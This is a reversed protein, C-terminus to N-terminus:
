KRIMARIDSGNIKIDFIAYDDESTYVLTTGTNHGLQAARIPASFYKIDGGIGGGTPTIVRYGETRLDIACILEGLSTRIFYAGNTTPGTYAKIINVEISNILKPASLAFIGNAVSSPPIPNNYSNISDHGRSGDNLTGLPGIKNYPSGFYPIPQTNEGTYIIKSININEHAPLSLANGSQFGSELNSTIYTVDLFVDAGGVNDQYIRDVFCVPHAKYWLISGLQLHRLFTHGSGFERLDALSCRLRGSPEIIFNQSREIAEFLSAVKGNNRITLNKINLNPVGSTTAFYISSLHPNRISVGDFTFSNLASMIQIIGVDAGGTILIDKCGTGQLISGVVGGDIKFFDIYKDIEVEKKIDCNKMVTKQSSFCYVSAPCKINKLTVFKAGGVTIRGNRSETGLPHEFFTPDPLTTLGHIELNEIEIFKDYGRDLSLVQPPGNFEPKGSPANGRTGILPWKPDYKYQLDQTLIINKGVIDKITGYEFYRAIQPSGRGQMCYGFVKIRSGIKYVDMDTDHSMTITNGSTSILLDGSDLSIPSSIEVKPDTNVYHGEFTLTGNNVAIIDVGILTPRPNIYYAGHGSIVVEHRINRFIWPAMSSYITNPKLLLKLSQHRRGFAAIKGMMSTDNRLDRVAQKSRARINKVIQGFPDPTGVDGFQDPCVWGDNSPLVQLKHGSPLEVDFDVSSNDVVLYNYGEPSVYNDGANLNVTSSPLTSAVLKISEINDALVKVEDFVENLKRDVVSYDKNVDLTPTVM